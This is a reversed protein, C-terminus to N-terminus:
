QGNGGGNSSPPGQPISPPPASGFIATLYWVADATGIADDYWDTTVEGVMQRAYPAVMLWEIMRHGESRVMESTLSQNTEASIASLLTNGGAVQFPVIGIVPQFVSEWDDHMDQRWSQLQAPDTGGETLEAPNEWFGWWAYMLPTPIDDVPFNWDEPRPTIVRLYLPEEEEVSASNGATDGSDGTDGTDVPEPDECDQPPDDLPNVELYGEEVSTPTVGVYSFTMLNTSSIGSFDFDGCNHSDRSGRNSPDGSLDEIRIQTGTSGSVYYGKATANVIGGRSSSEYFELTVEGFTGMTAVVTGSSYTPDLREIYNYSDIVTGADTVTIDGVAGWLGVEHGFSDVGVFVLILELNKLSCQMTSSGGATYLASGATYQWKTNNLEEPCEDYGGGDATDIKGGGGGFWCANLLLFLPSLLFVREM